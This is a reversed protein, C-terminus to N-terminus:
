AGARLADLAWHAWDHAADNARIGYELALRGLGARGDAGVGPVTERLARLRGADTAAHDAIRRLAERADPPDLATILFMRLVVENRVPGGGGPTSLLWDRLEARGADTVDYVRRGRAGEEVVEVLGRGALKALEPYISTHGAQWAWQGLAGEFERALDYGTAPEAALLGLLAHPLSM